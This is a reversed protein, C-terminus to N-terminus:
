MKSSRYRRRTVGHQSRKSGNSDIRIPAWAYYSYRVDARPELRLYDLGLKKLLEVGIMHQERIENM